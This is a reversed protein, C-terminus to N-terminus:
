RIWGKKHIIYSLIIGIVFLLIIIKKNLYYAGLLYGILFGLIILFYPFLPQRKVTQAFVRGAMLGACLIIIYGVAVNRVTISALFGILLLLVFFVEAWNKWYFEGIAM